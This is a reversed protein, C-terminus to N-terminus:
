DNTSFLKRVGWFFVFLFSVVSGFLVFPQNHYWAELQSPTLNQEFGRPGVRLREVRGEFVVGIHQGGKLELRKAKVEGSFVVRDNEHITVPDGPFGPLRVVGKKVASIFVPDSDGGRKLFELHDIKLGRIQLPKSPKLRLVSAVGGNARADFDLLVPADLTDLAVATERTGEGYTLQTAPGVELVGAMRGQNTSLEVYGQDVKLTLLARTEPLTDSSALRLEHIQVGEGEVYASLHRRPSREHINLAALSLVSAYDVIVREAQLFESLHWSQAAALQLSVVDTDLQMEIDYTGVPTLWLYGALGVCMPGILAAWVWNPVEALRQELNWLWLPMWPPKPKAGGIVTTAAEIWEIDKEVNDGALLKQAARKKRQERRRKLEQM